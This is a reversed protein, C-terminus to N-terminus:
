IRRGVAAVGCGISYGHAEGPVTTPIALCAVGEMRDRGVYQLYMEALYAEGPRLGATALIEHLPEARKHSVRLFRESQSAGWWYGVAVAVSPMMARVSANRGGWWVSLGAGEFGVRVVTGTPGGHDITFEWVSDMVLAERGERAASADLTRERGTQVCFAPNDWSHEIIWGAPPVDFWYDWSGFPYFLHGPAGGRGGNYWRGIEMSELPCYGSRADPLRAYFAIGEDTWDPSGKIAACEAADATYFHSSRPAFAASYFRCVPVLGPEPADYVWLELGSRTWGIITGSDLAAIEAPNATLFVHDGVYEIAKVLGAQAPMAITVGACLSALSTRVISILERM